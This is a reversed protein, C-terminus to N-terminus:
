SFVTTFDCLWGTAGEEGQGVQAQWPRWGSSLTFGIDIIQGIILFHGVYPSEIVKGTFKEWFWTRKCDLLNPSYQPVVKHVSKLSSRMNTQSIFCKRTKLVISEISNIPHFQTCIKKIYRSNIVKEIIDDVGVLCFIWLYTSSTDVVRQLNNLPGVAGKGVHNPVPGHDITM